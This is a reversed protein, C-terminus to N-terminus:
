NFLYLPLSQGQNILNPKLQKILLSEKHKLYYDSNANGIMTFNEIKGSCTESMNIHNLIASNNANKLNYKLSKGTRISLGLHEYERM